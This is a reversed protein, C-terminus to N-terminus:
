AHHTLKQSNFAFSWGQHHKNLYSRIQEKTPSDLEESTSAVILTPLPVTILANEFRQRRQQDQQDELSMAVFTIGLSCALGILWMNGLMRTSVVDFTISAAFLIATLISSYVLWPRDLPSAFTHLPAIPIM